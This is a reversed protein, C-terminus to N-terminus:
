KLRLTLLFSVIGVIPWALLCAVFVAGQFVISDSPLLVHNRLIGFISLAAVIWLAALMNAEQGIKTCGPKSLIKRTLQFGTDGSVMKAKKYSVGM